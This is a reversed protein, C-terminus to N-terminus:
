DNRSNTCSATAIRGQRRRGFVAAQYAPVLAPTARACASSTIEQPCIWEERHDEGTAM